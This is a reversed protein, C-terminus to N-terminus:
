LGAWANRLWAWPDPTYDPTPHPKPKPVEDERLYVTWKGVVFLYVKFELNVSPWKYGHQKTWFDVWNAPKFTILNIRMWYENRFISPDLEIGRYSLLKEELNVPNGGRVYYLGPTEGVAKPILDICSEIDTPYTINKVGIYAPAFYVEDPNDQFYPPKRPTIKIWIETGAYDPEWAIGGHWAREWAEEETGSLWINITWTCEYKYMEFQIVKRVRTGNPLTVVGKDVIWPWSKIPKESVLTFPGQTACLDPWGM